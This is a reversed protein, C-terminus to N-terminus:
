YTQYLKYRKVIVFQRISLIAHMHILREVQKWQQQPLTCLICRIIVTEFNHFSTLTQTENPFAASQSKAHPRSFLVPLKSCYHELSSCQVLGIRLKFEFAPKSRKGDFM